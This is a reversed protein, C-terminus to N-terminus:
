RRRRRERLTRALEAYRQLEAHEADRAKAARSRATMATYHVESWPLTSRDTGSAEWAQRITAVVEQEPQGACWLRFALRFCDRNRVGERSFGNTTFWATPPLADDDAAQGDAGGAAGNLWAAGERRAQVDELLWTPAEPIAVSVADWAYAVLEEDDYVYGDADRVTIPRLRLSPPVAVLGGCAKVEVGPLFHDNRPVHLGEPLRFWHHRGGSPTSSSPHKPLAYGEAERDRRWARLKAHGDVHKVDVDLVLLRSRQGTVVGLNLKADAAYWRDADAPDTSGVLPAGGTCTCFHWGRGNLVHPQNTRRALPLVTLGQGVYYRAWDAATWDVM